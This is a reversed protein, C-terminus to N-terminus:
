RGVLVIAAGDLGNRVGPARRVDVELDLLATPFQEGGLQEDVAMRLVLCVANEAADAIRQLPFKDQDLEFRDGARLHAFQRGVKIDHESKRGSVGDLSTPSLAPSSATAHWAKAARCSPCPIDTAWCPGRFCI